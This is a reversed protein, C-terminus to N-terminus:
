PGSQPLGAKIGYAAVDCAGDLGGAAWTSRPWPGPRWLLIKVNRPGLVKYMMSGVVVPSCVVCASVPHGGRLSLAPWAGLATSCHEPGAGPGVGVAGVVGTVPWVGARWTVPM